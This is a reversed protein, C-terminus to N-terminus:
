QWFIIPGPIIWSIKYSPIIQSQHTSTSQHTDCLLTDDCHQHKLNHLKGLHRIVFIYKNLIRDSKIRGSSQLVYMCSPYPDGFNIWYGTTAPPLEVMKKPVGKVYMLEWQFLYKFYINTYTQIDIHWPTQLLFIRTPIKVKQGDRYMQLQELSSIILSVTGLHWQHWLMASVILWKRGRLLTKGM